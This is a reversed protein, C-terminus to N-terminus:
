HHHLGAYRHHRDDAQGSLKMHRHYLVDVRLVQAYGLPYEGGVQDEGSQEDDGDSEAALHQQGAGYQRVGVHDAQGHGFGM